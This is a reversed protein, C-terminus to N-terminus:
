RQTTYAMPCTAPMWRHVIVLALRTGKSEWSLAGPSAAGGAQGVIICCRHLPVGMIPHPACLPNIAIQRAGKWPTLVCHVTYLTVLVIVNAQLTLEQCLLSCVFGSAKVDDIGCQSLYVEVWRSRLRVAMTPYCYCILTSCGARPADCTCNTKLSWESVRSTLMRRMSAASLAPQMFIVIIAQSMFYSVEIGCLNIVTCYM